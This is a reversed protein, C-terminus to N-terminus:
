LNQLAVADRVAALEDRNDPALHFHIEEDGDPRVFTRVFGIFTKGIIQSEMSRLLGASPNKNGVSVEFSEPPPFHGTLKDLTQLSMVFRVGSEEPKSTVTTARVRVVADGLQTRERLSRDSHPDLKADLSLGVASPEISDDFLEAAHGAYPPLPRSPSHAGAGVESECAVTAADASALALAFTLSRVSAPCTM